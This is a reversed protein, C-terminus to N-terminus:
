CVSPECASFSFRMHKKPRYFNYERGSVCHVRGDLQTDDGLKIERSQVLRDMSCGTDALIQERLAPLWEPDDAWAPGALLAGTLCLAFAIGVPRRASRSM